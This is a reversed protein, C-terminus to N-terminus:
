LNVHEKIKKVVEKAPISTTDIVLDYNKPNEMDIKYLKNYRENELHRRERIGEAAEKLTKFEEEQRKHSLIRKAGEVPEVKLFIKVSDPIFHYGLRSDMVFNDEKEGLKRSYDDIRKDIKKDTLALKGLEKFSVGMDVALKRFLDGTSYHKFKLEKALLKAVTSKGSGPEGSITIIM